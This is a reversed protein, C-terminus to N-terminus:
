ERRLIQMPDFSAARQAPLFASLLAAALVIMAAAM